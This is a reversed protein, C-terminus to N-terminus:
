KWEVGLENDIEALRTRCDAIQQSYSEKVALESELVSKRDLLKDLIEKLKELHQDLSDLFNDVRILMGTESVGLEVKYKGEHQLLIYPKEKTMNAPLIVSFGQYTMLTREEATLINEQVASFLRTRAAAREEKTATTKSHAYYEIDAACARVYERQRSIKNPLEMLETEMRERNEMVKYQLSIYRSLRNATEVREKILPNGIALAKVEAYSLVTSEIESGTRETYVGSLLGDIFRQKTELLQWSYADFSGETIYRFIHVRKNTNGQRLIRGERQTMDAPRWPVDLHHVAILRDQVNVGLGLKFTSGILIRIDGKRVKEFLKERKSDTNADHVYAIQESPVGMYTLLRKMEDYINFSDKPTSSDCFILQASKEAHTKIYIDFVNEACHAAKSHYTFAAGADVLRLDLAAQRGDTTIKLLNDACRDILGKRVADARQSIDDLYDAFETTREVVSDTYGDFQPIGASTDTRHFDAISALMNTLEPINHFKAFRTALRYSSTDIDIEFETVKEAFMGVWSDFSQLDLLSLEGIQLYKQMIFVDTVSNTIPTGTALVVGSGNNSKQVMHVKDMMDQCKQSGRMNLGNVKTIKSEFPVNKFNHAEDVFLRTIGIDDFYIGEEAEYIAQRLQDMAKEIARKRHELQYTSKSEIKRVRDIEAKAQTLEDMLFNKSLPIQEFCSYAIIIGDYDDDKMKRLVDSRKDPTFDRPEICLLKAQPYMSEFIRKWQGVISNPVVYLNKKSLGMRRLEMGAAIMIYTKGSGVEHALLTNPSFLIRAVANKQYPYLKIQPSMDPFNLFSGDYRRCRVQGYRENFIDVLMKKRNEDQWVWRQFESILKQQKELALATEAKNIVMKKGSKAAQDKVEDKIAITRMNLTKEIIHMANIRDTGYIIRGRGNDSGLYKVPVEWSGTIEDHMVGTWPYDLALVHTIFDDIVSVPVWPSGLTIYIDEATIQPPLIREIARVNDDFYGDYDNNARRAAKLKAVLNGSLYEDATEWGKYFCEGWTEPNQYISGKLTCIVTKYDEGTISAIYEIDVKGLATLSLILGDAISEAHINQTRVDTNFVNEWDMPLDMCTVERIHEQRRQQALQKQRKAEAAERQKRENEERQKAKEQAATLKDIIDNIEDSSINVGKQQLRDIFEEYLCLRIIEEPTLQMPTESKKINDTSM